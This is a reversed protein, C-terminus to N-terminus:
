SVIVRSIASSLEDFTFPKPIVGDFGYSRYDSIIPDNSYGSTVIVKANNDIERLKKVAERGGMGGRVTLDLIVASFPANDNM